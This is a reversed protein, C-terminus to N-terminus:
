ASETRASRRQAVPSKYANRELRALAAEDLQRVFKWGYPTKIFAFGTPRDIFVRYDDPRYSRTDAANAAASALLSGALMAAIGFTRLIRPSRSMTM